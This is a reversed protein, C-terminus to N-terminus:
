MKELNKVGYLVQGAPGILAATPYGNGAPAQTTAGPDREGNLQKCVYYM